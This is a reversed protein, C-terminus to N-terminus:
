FEGVLVKKIEFFKRPNYGWVGTLIPLSPFLPLPPSPHPLPPAAGLECEQSRWQNVLTPLDTECCSRFVTASRRSDVTM